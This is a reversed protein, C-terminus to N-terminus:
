NNRREEVDLDHKLDNAPIEPNKVISFAAFCKVVNSKMNRELDNISTFLSYYPILFLAKLCVQNLVLINPTLVM